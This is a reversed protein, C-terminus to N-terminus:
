PRCALNARVDELEGPLFGEGHEQELFDIFGCIARTQDPTLIQLRERQRTEDYSHRPRRFGSVISEPLVDAEDFHFLAALLFAPLFFRFAEPTFASLAEPHHLVTELPMERWHRGAFLARIENCELHDGSNDYVINGDGPYNLPDFAAEIELRLQETGQFATQRDAANM